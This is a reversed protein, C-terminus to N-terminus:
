APSPLARHTGGPGGLLRSPRWEQLEGLLPADLGADLDNTSRVRRDFLELLFVAGLGLIGGLIVGLAINVLKRPKAPRSPEVAPSLLTVNSTRAGSEVKNVLYRAHAAEYAKQATEVDRQLVLAQNRADRMKMVRERQEALAAKMQGERQRQQATVNRVGGVIRGMEANLRQRLAEVQGKAQIYEPHAEGVRTAVQAFNSEAIVMQGKLAQVVPNSLVDPLADTGGNLRVAADNASNSAALSQTDLAALRAHEIDVREDTAIIGNEQQFKALRMQASEFQARLGKLQEEFWGAAQTTPTVRLQLTMDMYARAIANAAAAVFVPDKGSYVINIVNSQTADVKLGALIGRGLWDEITGREGSEAFAQRVQPNDALKLEEAAKKAVRESTLIDIQTQMWGVRERQSAVTGNLSQEDRTDVLISSVAQYTKPMLLTVLVAAAVTAGMLALFVGLRGRLALFFQHINM